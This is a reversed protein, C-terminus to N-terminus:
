AHDPTKNNLILAEHIERDEALQTALYSLVSPATDDAKAAILFNAPEETALPENAASAIESDESEVLAVLLELLDNQPLPLLGRAAAVRAPQPASGEIIAKVVPNSSTIESSM